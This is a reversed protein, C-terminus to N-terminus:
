NRILKWSYVISNENLFFQKSSKSTLILGNVGFVSNNDFVLIKGNNGDNMERNPAGFIKLLDHANKGIYQDLDAIILKDNKSLGKKTFSESYTLNSTYCSPILFLVLFYVPKVLYHKM